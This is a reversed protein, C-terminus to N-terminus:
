AQKKGSMRRRAIGVLGLGLLTLTAPEPVQANAFVLDATGNLQQATVLNFNIFQGTLNAEIYFLPRPQTFFTCGPGVGASAVSCPAGTNTLSIPNFTIGFNGSANSSASADGDGQLLVGHALLADNADQVPAAYVPSGATDFFTDPAAAGNGDVYLDAAASTVNFHVAGTGSVTYNGNAFYTAYLRYTVGDGSVLPAITANNQDAILDLTVFGNSTFTNGLGLTLNEYYSGSIRDGLQDASATGFTTPNFSFVPFTSASASGSGIVMAAVAVAAILAKRVLRNGNFM